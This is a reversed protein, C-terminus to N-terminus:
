WVALKSDADGERVLVLLPHIEAGHTGVPRALAAAGSRRSARRDQLPLDHETSASGRRDREVFRGRTRGVTRGRESAGALPSLKVGSPAAAVSAGRVQMM